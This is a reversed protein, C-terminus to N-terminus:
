YNDPNFYVHRAYVNELADEEVIGDEYAEGLTCITGNSFVLIENSDEFHFEYGGYTETRSTMEYEKSDIMFYEVGNLSTYYERISVDERSLEPHAQLYYFLVEKENIDQLRVSATANVADGASRSAFKLIYTGPELESKVVSQKNFFLDRTYYGGVVTIGDEKYLISNYGERLLNCKETVAFKYEIYSNNTPLNIELDAYKDYEFSTSITEQVAEAQCIIRAKGKFYYGSGGLNFTFYYRGKEFVYFKGGAINVSKDYWQNNETYVSYSSVETGDEQVYELAYYGPAEVDLYFNYEGGGVFYDQWENYLRMPNSNPNGIFTMPCNYLVADAGSQLKVEIIYKEGYDLFCNRNSSNTYHGSLQQYQREGYVENILYVVIAVNEDLQAFQYIGTETPEIIFAEMDGATELYATFTNNGVTIPNEFDGYDILPTADVSMTVTTKGYPVYYHQIYYVGAEFYKDYHKNGESDYINITQVDGNKTCEFSYIGSDVINIPLWNEIYEGNEYITQCLAYDFATITSNVDIMGTKYAMADNRSTELAFETNEPTYIEVEIQNIETMSFSCGIKHEIYESSTDYHLDYHEVNVSFEFGNEFSYYYTVFFKDYDKTVGHLGFIESFVEKFPEDVDGESMNDLTNYAYYGNEGRVYIANDDFIGDMAPLMLSILANKTMETADEVALGVSNKYQHYVIGDNHNYYYIEDGKRMRQNEFDVKADCNSGNAFNRERGFVSTLSYYSGSKYRYNKMEGTALPMIFEGLNSEVEEQITASNAIDAEKLKQYPHPTYDEGIIVYGYVDTISISDTGSKLKFENFSASGAVISHTENNYDRSKLLASQEGHAVPLDMYGHNSTVKTNLNYKVEGKVDIYNNKAVFAIYTTAAPYTMGNSYNFYCDTDVKVDFYENFNEKTLAIAGEPYNNEVSGDPNCAVFVTTLLISLVMLAFVKFVVSNFKRKM